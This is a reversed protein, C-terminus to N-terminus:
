KRRPPKCNCVPLARKGKARAPRRAHPKPRARMVRARGRRRARKKPRPPRFSRFAILAILITDAVDFLIGALPPPGTAVAMVFWHQLDLSVRMATMLSLHALFETLLLSAAVFPELLAAVIKRRRSNMAASRVTVKEVTTKKRLCIGAIEVFSRLLRKSIKRLLVAGQARALMLQKGSKCMTSQAFDATSTFIRFTRRLEPLSSVQEASHVMHFPIFKGCRISLSIRRGPHLLVTGSKLLRLFDTALAVHQKEAYGCIALFLSSM